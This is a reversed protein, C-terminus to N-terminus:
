YYVYYDVAIIISSIIVLLLADSTRRTSSGPTTPEHIAWNSNVGRKDQGRRSATLNQDGGPPLASYSIGHKVMEYSVIFM